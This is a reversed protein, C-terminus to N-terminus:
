FRYKLPVQQEITKIANAAQKILRDDTREFLSRRSKDDVSDLFKKFETQKFQIASLVEDTTAVADVYNDVVVDFSPYRKWSIGDEDYAMPSHVFCFAKYRERIEAKRKKILLIKKDLHLYTDIVDEWDSVTKNTEWNILRESLKLNWKAPEKKLNAPEKLFNDFREHAEMMSLPM